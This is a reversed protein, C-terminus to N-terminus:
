PWCLMMLGALSALALVAATRPGIPLAVRPVPEHRTREAISM